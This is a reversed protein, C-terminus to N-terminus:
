GDVPIIWRPPPIAEVQNGIYLHADFGSAAREAAMDARTQDLEALYDAPYDVDHNM